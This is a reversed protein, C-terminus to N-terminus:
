MAIGILPPAFEVESSGYDEQFSFAISCIL